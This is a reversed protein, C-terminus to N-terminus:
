KARKRRWRGREHLLAAGRRAGFAPRPGRTSRAPRPPDEQSPRPDVTLIPEAPVPPHASAPRTAAPPPEWEFVAQAQTMRRQRAALRSVTFGAVGIVLGVAVIVALDLRRLPLPAGLLVAAALLVAVVGAWLVPSRGGASEEHKM